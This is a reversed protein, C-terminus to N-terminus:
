NDGNQEGFLKSEVHMLYDSKEGIPCNFCYEWLWDEVDDSGFDKLIEDFIQNQQEQLAQIDGRAADVKEKMTNTM